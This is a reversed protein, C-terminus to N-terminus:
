YHHKQKKQFGSKASTKKVITKSSLTTTNISVKNVQSPGRKRVPVVGFASPALNADDNARKALYHVLEADSLQPTKCNEHLGRSPDYKWRNVKIFTIM